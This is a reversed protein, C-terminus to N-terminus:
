SGSALIILKEQIRMHSLKQKFLQRAKEKVVVLARCQSKSTTFLFRANVVLYKSSTALQRNEIQGTDLSLWLM